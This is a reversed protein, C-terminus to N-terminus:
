AGALRWQLDAVLTWVGFGAWMATIAWFLVPNSAREIPEVLFAEGSRIAPLAWYLFLLGWVWYWSFYTAILLVPLLIATPWKITEM